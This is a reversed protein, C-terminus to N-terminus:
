AGGGSLSPADGGAIVTEAEEAIVTEAEEAIVSEAEGAIVSEAEEAIVTEAEEAIVTEAEEAIVTEAEEAIVTEAEGPTATEPAGTIEAAPVGEIDEARVGLTDAEPVGLTEAAPVGEIDEGTDEGAAEDNFAGIYEEAPRDENLLKVARGLAFYVIPACLEMELVNSGISMLIASTIIALEPVILSMRPISQKETGKLSPIPKVSKIYVLAVLFIILSTGILGMEAYLKVLGGDAVIYYQYGAARHGRSGLGDGIWFNRMDNVAAVWSESREGFGDPISALRIWFKEFVGRAFVFVGVLIAVVGAIEMWLYKLPKKRDVLFDVFNFFVLMLIICFMASRQNAMFSFLISLIIYVLGIIRDKKEPKRLFYASACMSYAVFCGMPGSGIISNMRVRMTPADAKSIFENVYSFDIYFQPAWIYFVAGIGGMLLAAIIFGHYYKSAGNEDFGRGAYYLLMPLLTTSIEGLYVALPIGFAVCWIGSIVNYLVYLTFLKDETTKFTFCKLVFIGVIGLLLFLTMTVGTRVTDVFVYLFYILTFIPYILCIYNEVIKKTM